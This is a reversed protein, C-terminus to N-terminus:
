ARSSGGNSELPARELSQDKPSHTRYIRVQQEKKVAREKEDATTQQEILTSSEQGNAIAPEKGQENIKLAEKIVPLTPRFTAWIVGCDHCKLVYKVVVGKDGFLEAQGSNAHQVQDEFSMPQVMTTKKQLGASDWVRLTQDMSCSLTYNDEPHCEACMIYHDHGTLTASCQHSQWNWICITQDDSASPIWPHKRHFSCRQQKCNWVKTKYDDGGSVFLPKSPHFAIGWVPGSLRLILVCDFLMQFNWMQISGSHLSAALLLLTLKPHFAISKVRNSKSEFKTLMQMKAPCNSNFKIIDQLQHVRPASPMQFHTYM